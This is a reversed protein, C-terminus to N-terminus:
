ALQFQLIEFWVLLVLLLQVRTCVIVVTSREWEAM